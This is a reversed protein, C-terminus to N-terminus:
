RRRVDRNIGDDYAGPFRMDKSVHILFRYGARIELTPPLQGEQRAMDAGLQTISEGLGRHVANEYYQGNRPATVEYAVTFASTMLAAALRSAFHRNIRDQFGATGAQDAGSMGGLDISAGNPFNLRVWAVQVRYQGQAIVANYTGVLRAGQPILLSQGTASDFVNESVQGIIQGPAESHIGSIMVGPIVSGMQMEYPTVQQRVTSELVGPQLQAGGNQFFGLKQQSMQPDGGGQGQANVGAALGGAAPGGVGGGGLGRSANLLAMSPMAAQMLAREDFDDAGEEGSNGGMAQAFQALERSQQKKLEAFAPASSSAAMSGKHLDLQWKQLELAHAMLQAEFAAKYAEPSVSASLDAGPGASAYGYSSPMSPVPGQTTGLGAQQPYQGQPAGTPPMPRKARQEAAAQELEAVVRRNPVLIKTKQEEEKKAEVKKTDSFAVWLAMVVLFLGGGVVLWLPRSSFGTAKPPTSPNAEVMEQALAM